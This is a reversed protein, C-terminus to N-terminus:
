PLIELTTKRKLNESYINYSNRDEMHAVHGALGMRVSKTVRIINKACTLQDSIEYNRNTIVIRLPDIITRFVPTNYSRFYPVDRVSM